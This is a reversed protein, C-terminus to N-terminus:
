CIEAGRVVRRRASGDVVSVLCEKFFVFEFGVICNEGPFFVLVEIVIEGSLVVGLIQSSTSGLVRGTTSLYVEGKDICRDLSPAM